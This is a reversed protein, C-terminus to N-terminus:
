SRKYVIKSRCAAFRGLHHAPSSKGLQISQAAALIRDNSQGTHGAHCVKRKEFSSAANEPLDYHSRTAMSQALIRLEGADPRKNPMEGPRIIGSDLGIGHLGPGYQTYPRM